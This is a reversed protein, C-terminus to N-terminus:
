KDLFAVLDVAVVEEQPQDSIPQPFHSRCEQRLGRGAKASALKGMVHARCRAYERTHIPAEEGGGEKQADDVHDDRQAALGHIVPLTVAEIM